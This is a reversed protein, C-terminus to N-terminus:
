IDFLNIPKKFYDFISKVNKMPKAYLNMQIQFLKKRREIKRNLLNKRMLKKQSIKMIKPKLAFSTRKPSWLVIFEVITEM